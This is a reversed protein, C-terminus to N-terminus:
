VVVDVDAGATVVVVMGLWLVWVLVVFTGSTVVVVVVVVVESDDVVVVAGGLDVAVQGVAPPV